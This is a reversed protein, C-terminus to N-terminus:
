KAGGNRYIPCRRWDGWALWHCQQHERYTPLQRRREECQQTCPCLGNHTEPGSVDGEAIAATPIGVAATGEPPSADRFEALVDDLSLQQTAKFAAMKSM